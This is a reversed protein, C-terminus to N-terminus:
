GDNDEKTSKNTTTESAQEGVRVLSPRLVKGNLLYGRRLEEVVTESGEHGGEYGVAEHLQPDFPQGEAEIPELGLEGLGRQLQQAVKEVGEAWPHGALDDPAHALARQLDDLTPLLHEVVSTTAHAKAQQQDQEMRRRYNAFDARERQLDNTLQEVEERLAELSSEVQETAQDQQEDQKPQASRKSSKRNQKAM